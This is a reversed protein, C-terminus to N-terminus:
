SKHFITGHMLCAAQSAAMAGIRRPKYIMGLVHNVTEIRIPRQNM